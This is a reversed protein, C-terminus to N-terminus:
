VAEGQVYLKLNNTLKEHVAQRTVGFREAVMSLSEGRKHYHRWLEYEADTDILGAISKTPKLNLEQLHRSVTKTSIGLRRAIEIISFGTKCMKAIRIKKERPM